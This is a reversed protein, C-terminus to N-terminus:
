DHGRELLLDFGFLEGCDSRVDDDLKQSFSPVDDDKDWDDIAEQLKQSFPPVDGDYTGCVIMGTKGKMEAKQKELKLGEDLQELLEMAQCPKLLHLSGNPLKVSITHRSEGALGAQKLWAMGKGSLKRQVNM